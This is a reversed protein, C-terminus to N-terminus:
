TGKELREILADKESWLERVWEQFRERFAPDEAYDGELMEAPIALRRARVIVRRVRGSLLDWFGPRGGPYVITVDLMTRLRENMAALVFSIGGARPRLLHRYPSEQEAHKAPTFRTGELFNLVSVPLTLYKRGARRTTELDKGRLEPRRELVERSYRKMFPYDLAWWALGLLPMWILERKLFFRPFPIRRNFAKLLVVIDVWSQHNSVVLYWEDRSLGEPIEFDWEIKQTLRIIDHNGEAWSEAIRVLVRGCARRWSPVPILLKAVAVVYLLAVWFVLNLTVLVLSLIGLIPAPLFHLM